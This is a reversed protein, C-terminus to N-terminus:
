EAAAASRRIQLLIPLLRLARGLWDRPSSTKRAHRGTFLGVAAAFPLLWPVVHRVKALGADLRATSSRLHEVEIRLMLRNLDSEILLAQKRQKLTQIPEISAM